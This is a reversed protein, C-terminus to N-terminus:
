CNWTHDGARDFNSELYKLQVATVVRIYLEFHASSQSYEGTLDSWEWPNLCEVSRRGERATGQARPRRLVCLGCMCKCDSLM